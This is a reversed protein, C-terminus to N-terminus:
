LEEEDDDPDAACIGEGPGLRLRGFGAGFRNDRDLTVVVAEEGFEAIAEEVAELLELLTIGTRIQDPAYGENDSIPLIVRAASM